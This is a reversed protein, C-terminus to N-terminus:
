PQARQDHEQGSRYQVGPVDEVIRTANSRLEEAIVKFSPIGRYSSSDFPDNDADVPCLCTDDGRKEDAYRPSRMWGPRPYRRCKADTLQEILDHHAAKCIEDRM